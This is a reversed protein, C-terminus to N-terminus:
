RAGARILAEAREREAPTLTPGLRDRAAQALPRLTDDEHTAALSFLAFAEAPDRKTGRGDEVLLGLDYRGYADGQEAALRYLRAAEALDATVGRGHRYGNALDFLADPHGQGAALRLWRVAERTDMPVGRGRAYAVGLGFQADADGAEALPRLREVEAAFAAQQGPEDVTMTPAGTTTGTTTACGAFLLAAQPLALAPKMM